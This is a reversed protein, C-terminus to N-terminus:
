LMRLTGATPVKKFMGLGTQDISFSTSVQFV